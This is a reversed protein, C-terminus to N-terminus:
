EVSVGDAYLCNNQNYSSSSGKISTKLIFLQLGYNWTKVIQDPHLFNNLEEMIDYKLLFIANQFGM